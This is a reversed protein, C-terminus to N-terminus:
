DLQTYNMSFGPDPGHLARRTCLSLPLPKLVMSLNKFYGAGRLAGSRKLMWYSGSTKSSWTAQSEAGRDSLILYIKVSIDSIVRHHSGVPKLCAPSLQHPSLVCRARSWWPAVLTNNNHLCYLGSLCVDSKSKVCRNMSLQYPLLAVTLEVM